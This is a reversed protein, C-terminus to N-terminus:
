FHPYSKRRQNTGGTFDKTLSTQLDTLTFLFKKETAKPPLPGVIDIHIIKFRPSKTHRGVISVQCQLYKKTCQRIDFM